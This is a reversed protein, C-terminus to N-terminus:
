RRREWRLRVASANRIKLLLTSSSDNVVGLIRERAQDTSEGPEMVAHVSHDRFLSIMVAVFEVQAFKKGPCNRQGDSWPFYTGKQPVFVSENELGNCGKAPETPSLIWRSPRWVLSDEGWYRPDTHLAVLSPFIMTKAPIVLSRGNVQLRRDCEGTWKPLGPVPNYLRITEFQLM